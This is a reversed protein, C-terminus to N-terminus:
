RGNSEGDLFDQREVLARRSVAVPCGDTQADTLVVNGNPASKGSGENMRLIGM